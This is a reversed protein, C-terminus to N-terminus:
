KDTNTQHIPISICFKAGDPTNEVSLKGHMNQEVIMKSMYLGLGTGNHSEKTTFYPEFIKDLIKHEIGGANDSISIKGYKTDKELRINIYPNKTKNEVLADKSNVLINLIVQSLENSFGYVMVDDKLNRIIEIENHRFSDDILTITQQIAAHLSFNSKKKNPKFFDRFDNITKSMQETLTKAKQTQVFLYKEDLKGFTYTLHINQIILSVASLPQRWQHAIMSIMEGMDALRSQQILLQEQQKRKSTEEKSKIDLTNNLEELELTKLELSKTRKKVRRELTTNLEKIREQAIQLEKNHRNLLIHKYIFLLIIVVFIFIIKWLLDYDFGKEYKISIWKNLINQKSDEKLTSIAKQFINLLILDDNRVAVALEWKEDIAGTIQLSGIFKTQFLHSASINSSIQGFLEGKKVKNFGEELDKVEVINIKPYKGRILEYLAYDKQIGIKKNNLYRLDTVYPVNAKTILVVPVVLYPTRFNMYEKRNPTAMALSLIDCKRNKAYELSQSWTKTQVLEIPIGIKEEFIKMYDAAIGIHKNNKIKEFPMWNPDICMAINNKKNLYIVEENTFIISHKKINVNLWKQIIAIKEEKTISKLGKEIVSHLVPKNKNTLIHIGIAPFTQQSVSKLGTILNNILYQEVIIQANYYADVKGNLVMEIAEQIDKTEVIQITPFM